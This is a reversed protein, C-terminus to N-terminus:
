ESRGNHLLLWPCHLFSHAHGRELLVKHVFVPAKPGSGKSERGPGEADSSSLLCPLAIPTDHTRSVKPVLGPLSMRRKWECGTPWFETAHGWRAALPAPFHLEGKDLLFAPELLSEETNGGGARAWGEVVALCSAERTLTHSSPCRPHGSPLRCYVTSTSGLSGGRGKGPSKPMRGKRWIRWSAEKARPPTLLRHVCLEWTVRTIPERERKGETMAMPVNVPWSPPSPSVHHQALHGSDGRGVARQGGSTPTLGASAQARPVGRLNPLQKNCLTIMAISLQYVRTTDM